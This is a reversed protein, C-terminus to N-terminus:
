SAKIQIDTDIQNGVYRKLVLLLVWNFPMTLLTLSMYGMDGLTGSGFGIIKRWNQPHYKGETYGRYPNGGLWLNWDLHEPIPDFDKPELGNFGWQKKSWVPVRKVKRIAGDQILKTAFKYGYSSHIQIGIQTTLNNKRAMREMLQAQLVSNTLPKQCYVSKGMEMALMSVPAHTHDPTTIIVADIKKGIEYFLEKYDASHELM